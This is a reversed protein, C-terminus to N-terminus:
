NPISLNQIGETNLFANNLFTRKPVKSIYQVRSQVNRTVEGVELSNRMNSSYSKIFVGENVFSENMAKFADYFDDYARCSDYSQDKLLLKSFSRVSRCISMDIHLLCPSVLM